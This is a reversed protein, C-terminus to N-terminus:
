FNTRAFQGYLTRAMIDYAKAAELPCTFRGITNMTRYGDYSLGIRAVWKSSSKEFSVGKFNSTNNSHKIQNYSNEAHTSFRLNTKRNDLRNRNKHDVIQGAQANLIVRHMFRTHPKNHSDRVTCAACFSVSPKTRDRAAHWYPNFAMIRDFDEADIIAVQGQSLSILMETM